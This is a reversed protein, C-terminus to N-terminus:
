FGSPKRGGPLRESLRQIEQQWTTVECHWHDIRHLNPSPKGLEDNIKALHLDIQRQLGNIRKRTQKNAGM